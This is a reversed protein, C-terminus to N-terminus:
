KTLILKNNRTLRLTYVEGDHEIQVLGRPGLVESARLRPTEGLRSAVADGSPTRESMETSREDRSDEQPSGTKREPPRDRGPTTM